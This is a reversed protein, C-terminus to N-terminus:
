LLLAGAAYALAFSLIFSGAWAGVTLLIKRVNVAERGGVAAGSGIIGSVVIENFSVPVGLLVALQAILFSPVLASISRRPGLSSYDQALSKIMRPSETWSGVLMGLGGGVLVTFTSVMGVEDLLPLLPGIALGVQSGGASFAVLSGLALLVRRLSGTEDRSIDWWVVAAVALAGLGTIGAASTVGDVALVQQGLGRVTGATSREALFSFQINVLVAGILGALAPVSYREPIDPRPLLSAITFAIGGGVFPTLVWVAVIQRYKPWVPSGGMALGVGIVAGTVTFATAIPYGTTIGVVMLGAGLVLVLIVGAIPLSIGGVLGSGIAESVNSGQTVAGAFGFVGVLLAARMTAIANAGVAPAYPTAGSSGAGIVWAMFLSALAAGVFLAILASDM